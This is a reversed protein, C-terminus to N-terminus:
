CYEDFFKLDQWLINQIKSIKIELPGLLGELKNQTWLTPLGDVAPYVLFLNTYVLGTQFPLHYFNFFDREKTTISFVM